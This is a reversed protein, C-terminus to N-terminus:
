EDKRKLRAAFEVIDMVALSVLLIGMFGFMDESRIVFPNIAFAVFLFGLLTVFRM